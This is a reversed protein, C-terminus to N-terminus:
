SSPLVTSFPIFFSSSPTFSRKQYGNGTRPERNLTGREPNGTIPERNATGYQGIPSKTRLVANSPLLCHEDLLSAKIRVTKQFEHDRAPSQPRM